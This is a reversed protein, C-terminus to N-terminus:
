RGKGRKKQEATQIKILDYGNKAKKEEYLTALDRLQDPSRKRWTDLSEVAEKAQAPSLGTVAKFDADRANLVGERADLAANKELMVRAFEKPETHRVNRQEGRDMGLPKGVLEYFEDQLAKMRFKTGGVLAKANLKGDVLPMFIAHVHPTKEDQHLALHLENEAGFLNHCFLRSRYVFEKIQTPSASDFWEPSATFVLEVAHVADKRVKQPLKETYSALAAQVSSSVTNEDIREPDANAPVKERTNHRLAGVLSARSKLKAM